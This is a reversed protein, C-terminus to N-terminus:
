SEYKYEKNIVEIIKSKLLGHFEVIIFQIEQDRQQFNSLKYNEIASKCSELSTHKHKIKHLFSGPGIKRM